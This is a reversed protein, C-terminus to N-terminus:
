LDPMLVLVDYAQVQSTPNSADFLTLLQDHLVELERTLGHTKHFVLSSNALSVVESSGRKSEITIGMLREKEQLAKPDMPELDRVQNQILHLLSDGVTSSTEPLSDTLHDFVDL